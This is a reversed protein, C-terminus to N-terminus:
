SNLTYSNPVYIKKGTNLQNVKIALFLIVFLVVLIGAIILPKFAKPASINSNTIFIANCNSCFKNNENIEKGCKPCKM